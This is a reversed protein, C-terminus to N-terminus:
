PWPDPVTGALAAELEKHFGADDLESKALRAIEAAEDKRDNVSLIAVLTATKNRFSLTAHERVSAGFETDRARRRETEYMQKMKLYDNMADVYEMYLSYEKAKILAPGSFVFAREAAQPNKEVLIKFVDTTKSEESLTRNIAVLDLFGIGLDKGAEAQSALDDRIQRLKEMAPPYSSGLRKWDSLAFSLRVGSLSPSIELANEHFWVHKALAINYRKARADVRAEQLIAQPDPSDPPLWDRAVVVASCLTFITMSVCMHVLKM